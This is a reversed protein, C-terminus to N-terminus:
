QRYDAANFDAPVAGDWAELPSPEEKEEEPDQANDDALASEKERKKGKGKKEDENQPWYLAVGKEVLFFVVFPLIMFWMFSM